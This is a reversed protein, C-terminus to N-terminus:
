ENRVPDKKKSSLGESLEKLLRIVMTKFQAHLLNRIEMKHLEKGPMNIQEKMQAMNRQRKM